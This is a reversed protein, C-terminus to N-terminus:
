GSHAANPRVLSSVFGANDSNTAQRALKAAHRRAVFFQQLASVCTELCVGGTIKAHHNLQNFSPLDLASGCAGTKADFAGFVIRAIRAHFMAGVCMMCPELTVYLSAQSLRYNSVRAGAQRLAVIEAHASPDHQAIPQNYGCALLQGEVVIVAGVPVEGLKAAKDAQELALTMWRADEARIAERHPAALNFCDPNPM